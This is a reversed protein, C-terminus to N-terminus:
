TELDAEGSTALLVARAADRLAVAGPWGAQDATLPPSVIVEIPHHRPFRRDGRLVDGTGKIAVPVVPVQADTAIMFAGMRLPHLGPVRSMEGEPFFALVAGARVRELLTGALAAAEKRDTRDVFAAGLRRLFPGAVRDSALGGAVPFLLPGPLVAALVLGDLISAHNAVLVCAGDPLQDLGSVTPTEACLFLFTKAGARFVGWRREPPVAGLLLWVPPAVLGVIAWAYSGYLGTAAAGPLRRLRLAAGTSALSAVQRWVPRRAPGLKGEEYRRRCDARRVKGSSTKLITGPAALVVDDPPVGVVDVSAAVIAERIRQREAEGREKTEALVVLRETGAGPDTAGFAATRGKRVGPIEGVAVEIGQPHINRGAKIILDKARGTVFLEGGALYGLDGSVLWDDHFLARSAPPNRYYGLTAAPGRFEIIGQQREGVPEGIADVIRLDFGPLPFGCGVLELSAEGGTAPVARGNAAFPERDIRDITPEKGPTPFTVGLSAEALGYVPYMSSPQFGVPGFRESFRRVTSVPVAEAGNLAIRWTSLDIGALDEDSIRQLCLEYAFNPAASITGAHDSIARLWRVPRALFSQPAMLVMPWGYYLPAMWAGILGMDHYLPLWSVFVERQRAAAAIGMARICALLNDHSLVVGKPVSTSGSTYQLLATAAGSPAVQQPTADGGLDAVTVVRNLTRVRLKLLQAARAAEPVSILVRARANDLITGQRQLHEEIEAMRAPPYIPVPVAGALLTGFFAVFYDLGTPLMLAVSDGPGVGLGQLAAAAGAAASLLGGYTLEEVEEDGRLFRIHVRDPHRAAHWALVEPLTTAHVPAWQDDADPPEPPPSPERVPAPAPKARVSRAPRTGLAAVLDRPTRAELLVEDPLTVGFASELRGLLEVLALSDLGLDRDLQSDLTLRAAARPFLEAVLGRVADLVAEAQQDDVLVGKGEGAAKAM